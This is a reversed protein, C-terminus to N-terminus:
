QHHQPNQTGRQQLRLKPWKSARKRSQENVEPTAARDAEVEAAEIEQRLRNLELINDFNEKFVKTLAKLAIERTPNDSEMSNLWASARKLRDEVSNILALLDTNIQSVPAPGRRVPAPDGKPDYPIGLADAVAIKKEQTVNQNQRLIRQITKEAVQAKDALASISIKQRLMEEAVVLGFAKM